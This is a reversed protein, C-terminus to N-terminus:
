RKGMPETLFAPQATAGVGGKHATGREFRLTASRQEVGDPSQAIIPIEYTGDPFVFHHRFTGDPNLKVPKDDIWVQADPHTGGYFIVEANVHMFFERPKGFPQASWSAGLSSFASSIGGVGGSWSSLWSSWFSSEGGVAGPWSALWSSMLSSSFSSVGAAGSWSSLWSSWFSEGKAAAQWSSLWSSQLSESAGAAVAWSSLWSSWFESQAAGPWSALWSSLGASQAGPWSSLWSSLISSPAAAGPWSALWSSIARSEAAGPWSALWSAFAGVEAGGLWSSLWSSIEGAEMAARWSALWSSLGFGLGSFLSAGGLEMGAPLLGSASESFLREKLQQRLLRDIEAPELALMEDVNNGLLTALVRRQEDTWEPAQGLVFALKRGEGQIRSLAELLSEGEGRAPEVMDLMKQFALHYPVTAFADAVQESIGDSPTTTENSRTIAEWNGAENIFGIEAYFTANGRGASIYWNRAEPSVEARYVEAGEPATYVKLIVKGERMRSPPYESWDIDWYCFLWQPDRAVLFLSKSGYSSPLTGLDEFAPVGMGVPAAEGLTAEYKHM